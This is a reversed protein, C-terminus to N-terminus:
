NFSVNDWSFPITNNYNISDPPFKYFRFDEIDYDCWSIFDDYDIIVKNIFQLSYWGDGDWNDGILKTLDEDFIWCDLAKADGYGSIIDISAIEQINIINANKILHILYEVHVYNRNFSEVDEFTMKHKDMINKLIYYTM